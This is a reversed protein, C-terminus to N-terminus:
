SLAGSLASGLDFSASLSAFPQLSVDATANLHIPTGSSAVSQLKSLSSVTVVLRAVQTSGAPISLSVNACSVPLSPGPQCSLSILLPYLGSNQISFNVALTATDGSVALSSGTGQSGGSSLTSLVSSVDAYASYAITAFTVISVLTIALSVARLARAATSPEHKM